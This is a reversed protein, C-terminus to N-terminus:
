DNDVEIERRAVVDYDDIYVIVDDGCVNISSGIEFDSSELYLEDGFRKRLEELYRIFEDVRHSKLKTFIKKKKKAITYGRVPM